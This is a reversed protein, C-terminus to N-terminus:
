IIIREFLSRVEDEGYRKELRRITFHAKAMNQFHEIYVYNLAGGGVAGIVPVARAIFKESIQITLRTAILGIMMLVPNANTMMIKGLGQIGHKSLYASASRAATVMAIRTAYYSTETPNQGKTDTGLAFVQLCALQTDVDYIDEGESRAIELISRMMMRTSFYLETIFVSTGIFNFSGFLGSGVGSAGVLLRYSLDSSKKFTKDNEITSINSKLIKFLINTINKSLWEQQNEPLASIGSEIKSGVKNLNSMVVGVNEIANKADRLEVLEEDNLTMTVDAPPQNESIKNM